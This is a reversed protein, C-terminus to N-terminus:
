RYRNRAIVSDCTHGLRRCHNRCSAIRSRVSDAGHERERSGREDPQRFRHEPARQQHACREAAGVLEDDALHAVIEGISWKGPAPRRMLKRRPVRKMLQELKKATAAQVKIPDRDGLYSQLRELYDQLTEPM